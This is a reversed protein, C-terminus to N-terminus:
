VGDRPGVRAQLRPRSAAIRRRKGVAALEMPFGSGIIEGVATMEMFFIRLFIGLRGPAPAPPVRRLEICPLCPGVTGSFKADDPIAICSAACTETLGYGQVVPACMAM